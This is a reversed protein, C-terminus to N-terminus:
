GIASLIGVGIGTFFRGAFLYSPQDAVAGAALYSGLIMWLSGCFITYKRSFVECLVGSALAGGWGGLQLISTLWGTASASAHISPFQARFAPM